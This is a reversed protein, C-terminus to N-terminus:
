HRLGASQAEVRALAGGRINAAMAEFQRATEEASTLYVAQAAAYTFARCLITEVSVGEESMAMFAAELKLNCFAEVAQEDTM